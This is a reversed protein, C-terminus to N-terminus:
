FIISTKALPMKAILLKNVLDHSISIKHMATMVVNVAFDAIIKSYFNNNRSNM